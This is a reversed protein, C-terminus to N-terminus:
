RRHRINLEFCKTIEINELFKNKTTKEKYNKLNQILEYIIQYKCSM